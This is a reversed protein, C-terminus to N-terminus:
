GGQGGTGAAKAQDTKEALQQFEAWSRSPKRPDWVKQALARLPMRIGRAVQAETQAGALDCWVAFRGGLVRDPGALKAPVPETGRLVAPTWSAYIREGTPYTFQNPEGLVYYLYEDNVNVVKRGERLYEQPPRAGIEKGTWYEVEIDEDPKVSGGNFFGDNWAKPRKDAKRVVEARDNLWATALDQIKGDAGYERRAEAALGPYSAEPDRAMLAPYEDAGIHFWRGPFVGSYERLLEDILKASAPKAIDIAGRVPQGQANRLQLDPNARLVAGLHGPSDIEPIVTVHLRDALDLIRRLQKKTLHQESVIDPHTESEIRFGQDDSFHLGLQNYKLDAIERIRDEIWGASFHKRAIDLMLGRQARDPRDQVTGEPFASGARLVQLVTRTGYFVGADASGTIRVQGNGTTIRYAEAGGTQDPEIALELDGQRAPGKAHPIDLEAAVTRAEDALPGDPDAVVRSDSGPRWGPGRASEFDRVAPITLPPSSPPYSRTPTTPPSEAESSSGTCATAAFLM